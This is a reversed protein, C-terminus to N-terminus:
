SEARLEVSEARRGRRRLWEKSLEFFEYNAPTVLLTLLTASALGAVFATAMPAWTISRSPFGIAMPLLGLITTVTTVLVPRMRVACAEMVAQRLPRGQRLLVSMFDILLITDNVAIGALGVIAMFSGITFTTRTVFLGLVVGILAFPVASLIILPRFYDQFQAALVLYIGLIAICFAFVLSRYSKRTADFEGGFSIAVGPAADGLGAFIRQALLQVRAPSLASGERIDAGITVSPKGNYRSRVSPEARRTVQVLDGLLVPAASDEIVPLALVDGPQKLGGEGGRAARVLLDVEEDVIRYEGAYAGYLAGAVLGTVEGPKLHYAYVAEPRPTFLETRHFQPQDSAIEVLDQLEPAARMGALLANGAALADELTAATLRINVAKGTPPGDSEEFLAVRPRHESGGYARAVYDELRRRMVELHVMPDNRPNDPFRQRRQDPLTVVVQGFNSGQHRVYDQDEYFGASGSASQAQGPGLGMIFRSLDRVVADTEEIATGVPTAITVHYRFYNGPFFKVRILPVIGTASLVLIAVALVLTVTLSGFTIWKHDLLLELLRRYSRWLASFPGGRQLHVLPNEEPADERRLKPARPGWDIYHIPLIFLAEWLSALLAFTVTTPIYAFFAGTTGTMLLMPLFALVTTLASSIVPLMVEATGDVIAAIRDKGQELHRYINEVIVIADDVIIGSVLVFAFLSITNLSVGSSKMVLIACLFSFPIGVAALLANRWGLTIWLIATVLSMGLVLNGRLTDLADNIEIVSDNTFVVGLGDRAHRAAFQASARQVMESVHIANGGEEKTVLLRVTNEGDVTPILTPDRHSLRADAALDAIRIFNGDGDRRVIVDLVAQQSDLRRGADLMVEGSGQRFRGAPIRTNASRLAELAQPFTVGLRRLRAPDLALHFEETYGGEIRANRVDPLTLLLTRLEDAYLELSRQSMPGTLNVAIVPLWLNTDVYLFRPEDAGEPLDSKINLIRFRLDDYLTEYDSDDIFKVKVSSFNRYSDSQIYEVNELGELAKEVRRTVLQEVDDASAGFYVTQVFVQGMDVLPMNELPTTLTSYVGAVLLIAYLVNFFVAQRLIFRVIGKMAIPM